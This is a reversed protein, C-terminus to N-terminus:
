SGEEGPLLDELEGHDFAARAEGNRIAVSVNELATVIGSSPVYQGCRDILYAANILREKRVAGDVAVAIAQAVADCGGYHESLGCMPFLLKRLLVHAAERMAETVAPKSPTTM